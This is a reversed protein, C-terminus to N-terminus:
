HTLRQLTGILKYVDFPKPLFANVESDQALQSAHRHASMLVIPLTRMNPLKRIRQALNLGDIGPMDYDMVIADPHIHSLEDILGHPSNKSVVQFGANELLTTLVELFDIDDDILIIHKM